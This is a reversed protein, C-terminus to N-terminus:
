LHLVVPECRLAQAASVSAITEAVAEERTRDRPSAISYARGWVGGVFGDCIPTHLIGVRLGLADAWGALEAIAEASHYDFHTRTAFVEIREFGAEAIRALHARSLRESHFLHTSISFM